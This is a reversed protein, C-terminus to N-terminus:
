APKLICSEINESAPKLLEAAMEIAAQIANESLGPAPFVFLVLNKTASKVRTRQDPGQFYSAIIGKSDRLVMEGAKCALPGRMGELIEGEQAVDLTLGTQIEDADHVGMLIGSAMECMLLSEVFPLSSPIGSQEAQSFQESLPNVFGRSNFFADYGGINERIKTKESRIRDMFSPKANKVIKNLQSKSLGRAHVLGLFFWSEQQKLEDSFHTNQFLNM